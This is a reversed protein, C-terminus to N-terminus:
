TRQQKDAEIERKLAQVRVNEPEDSDSSNPAKGRKQSAEHYRALNLRLVFLLLVFVVMLIMSYEVYTIPSLNRPMTRDYYIAIVAGVAGGAMLLLFDYMVEAFIITKDSESRQSTEAPM